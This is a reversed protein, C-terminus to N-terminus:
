GLWKKKNSATPKETFQSTVLVVPEQDPFTAIMTLHGGRTSTMSGSRCEPVKTAGKM